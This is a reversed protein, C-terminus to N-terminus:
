PATDLPAVLSVRVSPLPPPSEPQLFRMVFLGVRRGETDLWDGPGGPDRAALVFRYRGDILRATAGTRSVRRSRFDLSNLFRSYLLINWYRCLPPAGEIVLMEDDGLSWSGRLYAINPETFAAGGVMESWVRVENPSALDERIAHEFVSPVVSMGSGLRRLRHALRSPDIPPEPPAPACAEIRCAGLEDNAVDDHFFRVWVASAGGPLGLANHDDSDPEPSLHVEFSGDPDFDITDSDIRAVAATESRTASAYVTVSLYVAGGRKGRIRYRRDDRIDAVFYRFDPNDMFMKQRHGNFEVLEPRERDVEFRGLQNNLARLLARFGDAREVADLGPAAALQEGAVRVGEVFARWSGELTEDGTEAMVM